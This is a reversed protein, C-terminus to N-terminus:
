GEDFALRAPRSGVAVALASGRGRGVWSWLPTSCEMCCGRTGGPSCESTVCWACERGRSGSCRLEPTGGGWMCSLCLLEGRAAPAERHAPPADFPQKGMRCSGWARLGWCSSWCSSCSCSSRRRVSNGGRRAAWCEEGHAGAATAADGGGGGGAAGAPAAARLLEWPVMELWDLPFLSFMGTVPLWRGTELGEGWLGRGLGARLHM